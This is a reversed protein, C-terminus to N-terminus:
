IRQGPDFRCRRRLRHDGRGQARRSGDRHRFGHEHHRIRRCEVRGFHRRYRHDAPRRIGASHDRRHDVPRTIQPLAVPPRITQLGTGIKFDITTLTGAPQADAKLIAARLSGATPATNSGNDVATTVNLTSLLQRGELPEISFRRRLAATPASDPSAPRNRDFWFNSM